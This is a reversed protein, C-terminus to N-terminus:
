LSALTPLCKRRGPQSEGIGGSNFLRTELFRKGASKKNNGVRIQLRFLIAGKLRPNLLIEQAAFVGEGGGVVVILKAILNIKGDQIEIGEGPLIFVDVFGHCVARFDLEM